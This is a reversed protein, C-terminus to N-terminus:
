TSVKRYRARLVNRSFSMRQQDRNCRSGSDQLSSLSALARRTLTFFPFLFISQIPRTRSGEWTTTTTSVHQFRATRTATVRPRRPFLCASLGRAGRDKERSSTLHACCRRRSICRNRVPIRSEQRGVSRWNYRGSELTGEEKRKGEGRGKPGWRWPLSRERERENKKKEKKKKKAHSPRGRSREFHDSIARPVAAEYIYTRIDIITSQACKATNFANRTLLFASRISRTRSSAM